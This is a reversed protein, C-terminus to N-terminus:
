FARYLNLLLSKCVFDRFNCWSCISKGLRKKRCALFKNMSCALMSWNPYRSSLLFQEWYGFPSCSATQGTSWFKQQKHGSVFALMLDFCHHIFALQASWCFVVTSSSLNTFSYLYIRVIFFYGRGLPLSETDTVLQTNTWSHFVLELMLDRLGMAFGSIQFDQRM